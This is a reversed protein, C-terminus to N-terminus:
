GVDRGEGLEVCDGRDRRKVGAVHAALVIRAREEITRLRMRPEVCEAREVNLTCQFRRARHILHSCPSFGEQAQM